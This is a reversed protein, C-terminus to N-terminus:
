GQPRKSPKPRPLGNVWWQEYGNPGIVAPGDDRHLHGRRYWASWGSPDEIAPAGDRHLRGDEYWRRIGHRDVHLSQKM